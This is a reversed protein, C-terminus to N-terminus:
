EHAADDPAGNDGLQAIQQGVSEIAAGISVIMASQEEKTERNLQDVQQEIRDLRDEIQARLADVQRSLKDFHDDNNRQAEGFLLERVQTMADAVNAEDAGSYETERAEGSDDHVAANPSHDAGNGAGGELYEDSM